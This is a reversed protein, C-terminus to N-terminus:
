AELMKGILCQFAEEVGLGTKASTNISSWGKESLEEITDAGV